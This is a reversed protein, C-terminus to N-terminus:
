LMTGARAVASPAGGSDTVTATRSVASRRSSSMGVSVSSPYRKGSVYMKAYPVDGRTATRSITVRKSCTHSGAHSSRSCCSAILRFSTIASADIM